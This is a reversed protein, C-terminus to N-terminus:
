CQTDKMAADIAQRVTIRTDPDAYTNACETESAADWVDDSLWGNGKNSEEIMYDLRASDRQAVLLEARTRAMETSAAILQTTAERLQTTIEVLKGREGALQIELNEIDNMLDQIQAVHSGDM